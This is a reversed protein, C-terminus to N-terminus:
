GHFLVLFPMEDFTGLFFEPFISMQHTLFPPNWGGFHPNLDNSSISYLLIIPHCQIQIYSISHNNNFHWCVHPCCIVPDDFPSPCVCLGHKPFKMASICTVCIHCMYRVICIYHVSLVCIYIYICLYMYFEYITNQVVIMKWPDFKEVLLGRKGPTTAARDHHAESLRWNLHECWPPRAARPPVSPACIHVNKM